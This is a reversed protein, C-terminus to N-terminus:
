SLTNQDTRTFSRHSAGDDSSLVQGDGDDRCVCMCLAAVRCAM